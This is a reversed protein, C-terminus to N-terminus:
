APPPPPANGPDPRPRAFNLTFSEARGMESGADEWGYAYGGLHWLRVGTDAAVAYGCERARHSFAFDEALYWHGDDVPRVLPQFYPVMPSGFRENAVPLGLRRQLRSYVERRVLLFGTAAYLVETLGGGAGFVLRPTGPLAHSALARRGKQPYVGCVLPVGHARLRDVADPPFDVDADVWMTEAYGDLLADTAMQNRAQDIAAYGGVRRVAYGRRELGALAAECRPHVHGAYPVLVVCRGPDLPDPGPRRAPPRAPAARTRAARAGPLPVQAAPPYGAFALLDRQGAETNLAERMGFVRVRGPHRAALADLRAAYEDCYRRLGAPRGGADAYQPFTRTWLPDHHWGPPPDAAWHDTPLANREDLFRAFSEVTEERPRRLGVVRLGADAALADDVYPLYFAAVDAVAAAAPGAAAALRALRAAMVPPRGAADWPLLPPDELTVRTGPQRSLLDALSALGCRGTGVALLFRPM